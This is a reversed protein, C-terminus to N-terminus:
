EAQKAKRIVLYYGLFANVADGLGPVAGQLPPTPHSSRRPYIHSLTGFIFTWGVKFGCINLGTDLYRARKKVSKLIRADRRSLGPPIERQRGPVSATLKISRTHFWGTRHYSPRVKRRKQRGNADTYTEYLPDVPEYRQLHKEFLKLGAKRAITSTM